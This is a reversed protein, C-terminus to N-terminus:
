PTIIKIRDRLRIDASSSGIMIDFEGPEIVPKLKRDLITFDEPGLEFNVTKEEGPDLKVRQFRRLVKVPQSVSAVLDHLYLQVVEHGSYKGTNKLRFSVRVRDGPRIQKNSIALDSYAFTTYSLGFGFPFLELKGRNDVYDYVRGSPRYNYYLPCQGTTKPFTIPLKGGPNYDGFLVDAIGNGGEEGPYWVQLIADVDDIWRSMTVASGTELLVVTPVGLDSVHRILAEQTPSLSLQSRDKFEGEEIGCVIVAVDATRAAALAEQ